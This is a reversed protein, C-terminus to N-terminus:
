YGVYKQNEGQLNLEGYMLLLKLIQVQSRALYRIGLSYLELSSSFRFDTLWRRVLTKNKGSAVEKIKINCGILVSETVYM